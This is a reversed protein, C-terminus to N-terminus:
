LFHDSYHTLFTPSVVRCSNCDCDCDAVGAIMVTSMQPQWTSEYLTDQPSFPMSPNKLRTSRLNGKSVSTSFASTTADQMRAQRISVSQISTELVTNDLALRCVKHNTERGLTEMQQVQASLKDIPARLDRVEQFGKVAILRYCDSNM